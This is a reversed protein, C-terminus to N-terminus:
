IDPLNNYFDYLAEITDETKSDETDNEIYDDWTEDWSYDTEQIEPRPPSSKVPPVSTPQPTQKPTVATTSSTPKPSSSSGRSSWLWVCVIFGAIAVIFLWAGSASLESCGGGSNRSSSSNDSSFSYPCKGNPHDHAPYGHHYHYDGSSSDYHGGKSDTGGKHASVPIILLLVVAAILLFVLATRKM